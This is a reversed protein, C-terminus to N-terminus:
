NEEKNHFRKMWNCYACLCQYKKSDNKIQDLIYKYYGSKSKFSKREKEGGGHVHDIQLSRVDFKELPIPCNINSCKNGLLSLIELRFNKSRNKEYLNYRLKCEPHNKRWNKHANIVKEKFNEKYFINYGKTRCIKSCYKQKGHRGSKIEFEKKCLLCFFTLSKAGL